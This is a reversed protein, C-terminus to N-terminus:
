KLEKLKTKRCRYCINVRWKWYKGKISDVYHWDHGFLLCKIKEKIGKKM